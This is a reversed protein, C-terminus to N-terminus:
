NVNMKPSTDYKPITKDLISTFNDSHRIYLEIINKPSKSYFGHENKILIVSYKKLMDKKTIQNKICGYIQWRYIELDFFYM